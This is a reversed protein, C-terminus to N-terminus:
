GRMLGLQARLSTTFVVQSCRGNEESLTGCGMAQGLVDGQAEYIATQLLMWTAFEKAHDEDALIWSQLQQFDSSSIESDLYADFLKRVNQPSNNM